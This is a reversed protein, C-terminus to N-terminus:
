LCLFAGVLSISISAKYKKNPQRISPNISAEGFFNIRRKNDGEVNGTAAIFWAV